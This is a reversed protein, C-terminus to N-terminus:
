SESRAIGRQDSTETSRSARVVRFTLAIPGIGIRDGPELARPAFIRQGRVFTGNKSDLDEIIARSGTVLLRAHRRSVKPSDLWVSADPERGVIQEGEALPFRRRGMVLWCMHRPIADPAPPREDVVEGVFAYGYGHVTRIIAAGHAKDGVGMRLQNIARALSADSVFTGPWVCDLLESKSVVRPRADMLVKLLAFAKPSLHAERGNRYLRHAELDLRCEGFRVPM